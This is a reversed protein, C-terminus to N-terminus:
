YYKKENGWSAIDILTFFSNPYHSFCFCVSERNKNKSRTADTHKQLLCKCSYCCGANM